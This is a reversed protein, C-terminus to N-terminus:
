LERLDLCHLACVLQFWLAWFCLLKHVSNTLGTQRNARVRPTPAFLCVLERSYPWSFLAKSFTMVAVSM